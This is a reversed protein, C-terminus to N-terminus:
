RHDQEADLSCLCDGSPDTQTRAKCFSVPLGDHYIVFQSLNFKPPLEAFFFTLTITLPNQAFVVGTGPVVVISTQTVCTVARARIPLARRAASPQGVEPRRMGAIAAGRGPIRERRVLERREAPLERHRDLGLDPLEGRLDSALTFTNFANTTDTTLQTTIPNTFVSDTFNSQPQSDNTGEKFVLVAKNSM